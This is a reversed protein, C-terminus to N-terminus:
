LYLVLTINAILTDGRSSSVGFVDDAKTAEKMVDFMADTPQTATDSTIDYTIYRKLTVTAVHSRTALSPKLIRSFM